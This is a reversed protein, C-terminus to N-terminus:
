FDPTWYFAKIEFYGRFVFLGLITVSIVFASDECLLNVSYRM